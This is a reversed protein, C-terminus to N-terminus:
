SVNERVTGPPLPAPALGPNQILSVLKATETALSCHESVFSRGAVGMAARQSAPLALVDEIADALSESDAPRALRGWGPKVVEPLGVEDSAVVPVEMALAEKVVVPMTDRDGDQAIVCPAVVLDASELATKVETPECTGRFEVIGDMGLQDVQAQLSARLPGDGILTLGDVGAGRHELMAVAEILYPLGKKEVLRAVALLRRSGPYPTRRQFRAPDVGLVLRHIRDGIRAGMMARLYDASYDCDTVAFAAKAHKEEINRPLQFIDYGHTAVSYPLDLLAAARMADLAAEAAFHAHVHVVRREHLRRVAPALSRLTRPPEERAWRRRSLLDALARGPHRSILWILASLRSHREDDSAFCVDLGEAALPDAANAHSRSEVYVDHGQRQLEQVEGSVFTESLEPFRDVFVALRLTAPPPVGDSDNM